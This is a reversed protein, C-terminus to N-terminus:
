RTEILAGGNGCRTRWRAHSGSRVSYTVRSADPARWLSPLHRDGHFAARVLLAVQEGRDEAIQSLARELRDAELAPNVVELLVRRQPEHGGGRLDFLRASRRYSEEPRM